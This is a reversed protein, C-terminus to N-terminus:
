KFSIEPFGNQKFSNCSAIKRLNDKDVGGNAFLIKFLIGKRDSKGLSFNLEKEL